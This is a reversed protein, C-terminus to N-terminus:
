TRMLGLTIECAQGWFYKCLWSNPVHCQKITKIKTDYNVMIRVAVGINKTDSDTEINQLVLPISQRGTLYTDVWSYTLYPSEKSLQILCFPRITWKFCLQALQFLGNWSLPFNENWFFYNQFFVVLNGAFLFDM